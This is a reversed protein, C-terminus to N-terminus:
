HIYPRKSLNYVAPERTTASLGDLASTTLGSSLSEIDARGITLGVFQAIAVARSGTRHHEGPHLGDGACEDFLVLAVRTGAQPHRREDRPILAARETTDVPHEGRHGVNQCCM